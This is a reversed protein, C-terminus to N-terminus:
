SCAHFSAQYNLRNTSIAVRPIERSAVNAEPNDGCWLLWQKATLFPAILWEWVQRSQDPRAGFGGGGKGSATGPGGHRRPAGRGRNGGGGRHAFGKGRGKGETYSKGGGGRGGFGGRFSGARGGKGPGGRTSGTGGEAAYDTGGGTDRTARFDDGKGRPVDRNGGKAMSRPPSTSEARRRKPHVERVSEEDSSVERRVDAVKGSPETTVHPNMDEM